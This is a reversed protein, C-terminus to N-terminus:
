GRATLQLICSSFARILIRATLIVAILTPLTFTIHIINSLWRSLWWTLWQAVRLSFRGSAGGGEQVEEHRVRLTHQLQPTWTKYLILM